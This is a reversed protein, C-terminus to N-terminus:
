ASRLAFGGAMIGIAAVWSGAARLAVVRWGTGPQRFALAAAAVLTIAAYGTVALGAAFLVLDADAAVGAANAAGRVTGLLLALAPLAPDPLRVAAALLGGLAVMLGADLVPGGPLWGHLGLAFGALLGAPFLPVLWRARQPPQTGALLGLVTWLVVDQLGTLPHLAGAYFDGLRSAVIHAQAKSPPLLILPLLLAARRMPTGM